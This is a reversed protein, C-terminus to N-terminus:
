GDPAPRGVGGAQREAALMAPELRDLVEAEFRGTSACPAGATSRTESGVVIVSGGSGGEVRIRARLSASGVTGGGCDLYVRGDGPPTIWGLQVTREEPRVEEVLLDLEDVRQAVHTWLTGPPASVRREVVDEGAWREFFKLGCDAGAVSSALLLLVQTARRM